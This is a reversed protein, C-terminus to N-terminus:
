RWSKHSSSLSFNIYFRILYEDIKYKMLKISSFISTDLAFSSISLLLGKFIVQDSTMTPVVNEM